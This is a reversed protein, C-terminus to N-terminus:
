LMIDPHACPNVTDFQRQLDYTTYYVRCIQVSYIKSGIFRISNRDADTFEEHIDGDFKRDMLRGLLHDQLKPLFKKL